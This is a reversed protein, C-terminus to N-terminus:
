PATGEDVDTATSRARGTGVEGAEPSDGLVMGEPIVAFEALAASRDEGYGSFATLRLHRTTVPSDLDIAQPNWTSPLEAERISKWTTGDDSTELSHKRIDGLRDRDNQRNMFLLRRFTVPRPFSVVFTHPHAPGDKGGGASWFTNPDGDMALSAEGSSAKAVAGLKRMMLADFWLSRAVDVDLSLAPKEPSTSLYHLLSSRLQRAVPRKGLDKELDFMCVMLHGAGVNAELLMALRWNRNWDDIASVLPRTEMPLRSLNLARAGRTLETWQWDCHEATPFDAFAPHAGEIHLGLMRSWGPSMLRNWFVPVRDLPPCDWGLASTHPLFLVKGGSALGAEAEPWSRTIMVRNPEAAAPEKPYVWLSWDNTATEGVRLIFRCALAPGSAPLTLDVPELKTRGIPLSRPAWAGAALERGGAAEVLQWRVEVASLAAAGFNAIEVPVSVKSGAIFIRGDLRALPVLQACFKGWERADVYGKEEWFPDLPGVLATGQGTYDHLDLLQFGAMGHTRLNAEIDEKYCLVQFKGSALAFARNRDLIGTAAASARFIEYNGPRQYGTFKEIVSFDPYACWQGIEHAIVPITIGEMSASYDRGFWGTPGRVQKGGFRQTLTFDVKDIPGPADRDTFGTGTSYLRRPDRARWREVWAPLVQAWRGKPENSAVFFAFSPHNGYARLIRETERDLMAEMADGPQFTNWMGPEPQLYMGIEDAAIFAAEPPCFSHFRVHNIGWQKCTGFIGRWYEPDCPPYGTLPFDGGHHTGRLHTPRGNLILERGRTTFARFGFRITKTGAVGVHDRMEVLLSHLAPSFEDWTAVPLPCAVRATFATLGPPCDMEVETSALVTRAGAPGAVSFHLQRKEATASTNRVAGRIEVMGSEPDAHVNTEQLHIPSLARLEIRGVMGNWSMGLSDSVSHADPRYPLIMRNDLRLTLQHRGETLRGLEFEHPACLSDGSGIERGDIWVRSEWKVRELSLVVHREKWEAPIEIDRQYWAAGLYHRPPQCVFPVRTEGRRAHDKYEEREHWHRDYLSLVWPTDTSIEEGFGHAQLVGPVPLRDPLEREAWRAALGEDKTDLAFRWTGSLDIVAEAASLPFAGALLAFVSVM